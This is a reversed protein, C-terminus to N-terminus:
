LIRRLRPVLHGVAGDGKIGGETRQDGCKGDPTPRAFLPILKSVCGAQDLLTGHKDFDFDLFRVNPLDKDLEGRKLAQHFRQCPECWEAGIYIVVKAGDRDARELEAKIFAPGDTTGDAVKVLEPKAVAKSGAPTSQIPDPAAEPPADCGALPLPSLAIAVLVSRLTM